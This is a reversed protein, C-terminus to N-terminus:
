ENPNEKFLCHTPTLVEYGEQWCVYTEDNVPNRYRRLSPYALHSGKYKFGIFDPDHIATSLLVFHKPGIHSEAWWGLRKDNKTVECEVMKPKEVYHDPLQYVSDKEFTSQQRACWDLFEYKGDINHTYLSLKRIGIERAKAQMEETM